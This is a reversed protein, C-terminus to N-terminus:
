KVTFSFFNRLCLLFGCVHSLEERFISTAEILNNTLCYTLVNKSNVFMMHDIHLSVKFISIHSLLSLSNVSCKNISM